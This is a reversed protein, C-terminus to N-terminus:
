GIGSCRPYASFHGQRAAGECPYLSHLEDKCINVCVVAAGVAPVSEKLHTEHPSSSKVVFDQSDLARNERLESAGSFYTESALEDTNQKDIQEM